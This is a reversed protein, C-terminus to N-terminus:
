RRHGAQFASPRRYKILRAAVLQCALFFVSYFGPQLPLRPLRCFLEGSTRKLIMNLTETACHSGTLLISRLALRRTSMPFVFVTRERLSDGANFGM